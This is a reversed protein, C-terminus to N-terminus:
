HGVALWHGCGTGSNYIQISTTTKGQDAASWIRDNGDGCGLKDNTVEVQYTTDSFAIPFTVTVPGTDFRGTEGWQFILGGVQAYYGNATSTPPVMTPVSYWASGICVYLATNQGGGQNTYLAGNTCTGSPASSGTTWLVASSPGIGTQGVVSGTSTVGSFTVNHNLQAVNNASIGSDNLISGTGSYAILDQTTLPGTTSAAPNGNIYVSAPLTVTNPSTLDLTAAGSTGSHTLKFSTAPNTGSGPLDQWGWCDSVSASGNWINGCESWKPSNVNASSTAAVTTQFGINGTRSLYWQSTAGQINIPQMGSSGSFTQVNLLTGNGTNNVSDRITFPTGTTSANQGARWTLTYADVDFTKNTAPNQVQDLTPTVYPLTQFVTCDQQLVYASHNNTECGQVGDPWQYNALNSTFGNGIIAKAHSSPQTAGEDFEIGVGTNLINSGIVKNKTGVSVTDDNFVVGATCSQSPSGGNCTTVPTFAGTNEARFNALLGQAGESTLFRACNNIKFNTLSFQGDYHGIFFAQADTVRNCNIYGQDFSIDYAGQSSTVGGQMHSFIRNNFSKTNQVLGYQTFGSSSNGELLLGVGNYDIAYATGSVSPYDWNSTLHLQTDSDISAVEVFKGNVSFLTGYQPIGSSQWGTGSGTVINSGNTVTVTGQTYVKGTANQFGLNNLVWNSFQTIRLLSHVAGTGSTDVFNINEIKPGNYNTSNSTTNDWWLLDKNTNSGDYTFYVCGSSQSAGGSYSATSQGVLSISQYSTNTASLVLGNTFKYTGCPFYVEVGTKGNLYSGLAASVDSVGTNDLGLDRVADVGRQTIANLTVAGSSGGGTLGKGANVSTISGTNSPSWQTVGNVTTLVQGNTPSPKIQSPSINQAFASASLLFLALINKKM